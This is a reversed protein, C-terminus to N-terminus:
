HARIVNKRHGSAAPGRISADHLSVNQESLLAILLQL